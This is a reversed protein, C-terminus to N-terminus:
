ARPARFVDALAIRLGPLVQSRVDGTAYTVGSGYGAPSLAFVTIRRRVPDVIWYEDVGNQEYAAKKESRDRRSTSDSMIEVILSPVVKLFLKTPERPQDRLREHSVFSCDPQVTEGSPLDIGTSSAFVVGLDHETVYEDIGRAIRMEVSGHVWTAPPCMVIQGRLLEYHIIDSSPLGELWRLFEERTFREESRFSTTKSM